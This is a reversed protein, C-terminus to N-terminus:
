VVTDVQTDIVHLAPICLDNLLKLMKYECQHGELQLNIELGPHHTTKFLVICRDQTLVPEVTNAPVDWMNVLRKMSIKSNRLAHVVQAHCDVGTKKFSMTVDPFHKSTFAVVIVRESTKRLTSEAIATAAKERKVTFDIVKEVVKEVPQVKSKRRCMNFLFWMANCVMTIAIEWVLLSLVGFAKSVIAIVDAWSMAYASLWEMWSVQRKDCCEKQQQSFEVFQKKFQSIDSSMLQFETMFQSITPLDSISTRIASVNQAVSETLMYMTSVDRTMRLEHESYQKRQSEIQETVSGNLSSMMDQMVCTQNQFMPGAVSRMTAEPLVTPAMHNHFQVKSNSV